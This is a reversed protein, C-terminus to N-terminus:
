LFQSSKGTSLAVWEFMASETMRTATGDRTLDMGPAQGLDRLGPEAGPETGQVDRALQHFLPRWRAVDRRDGAAHPRGDPRALFSSPRARSLRAGCRFARLCIM